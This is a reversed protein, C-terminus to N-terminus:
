SNQIPVRTSCDLPWSFDGSSKSLGMVVNSSFLRDRKRRRRLSTSRRPNQKWFSVESNQFSTQSTLRCLCRLMMRKGTHGVNQSRILLYHEPLEHSAGVSREARAHWERRLNQRATLSALIATLIENRQE